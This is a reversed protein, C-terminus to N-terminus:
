LPLWGLDRHTQCCRAESRSGYRLEIQDWGAGISWTSLETQAGRFTCSAFIDGRHHVREMEEIQHCANDVSCFCSLVDSLACILNWKQLNKLSQIFFTYMFDITDQLLGASSCLYKRATPRSTNQLLWLRWRGGLGPALWWSKTIIWLFTTRRLFVGSSHATNLLWDTFHCTM